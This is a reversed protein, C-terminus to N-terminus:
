ALLFPHGQLLGAHLGGIRQIQTAQHDLVAIGVGHNGSCQAGRRVHQAGSELHELGLGAYRDYAAGEDHQQGFVDLEALVMHQYEGVAGHNGVGSGLFQGLDGDLGGLGGPIDGTQIRNHGHTGERGLSARRM